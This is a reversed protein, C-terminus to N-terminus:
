SQPVQSLLPTSLTETMSHCYTSRLFTMVGVYPDTGVQILVAAQTTAYRM